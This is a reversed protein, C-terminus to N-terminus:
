QCPEVRDDECIRPDLIGETMEVVAHLLSREAIGRSSLQNSEQKCLFSSGHTM